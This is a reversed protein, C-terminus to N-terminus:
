SPLKVQFISLCVVDFASQGACYVVCILLTDHPIARHLLQVNLLQFINVIGSDVLVTVIVIVLYIRCTCPLVSSMETNRSRKM